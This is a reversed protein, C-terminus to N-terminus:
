VLWWYLTSTHRWTVIMTAVNRSWLLPSNLCCRCSRCRSQYFRFRNINAFCCSQVDMVTKPVSRPRRQLDAVQFKRIEHARKISNFQHVCCLFNRKRNSFEPVTRESEVGSLKALIRCPLHFQSLDIFNSVTRIWKKLSTKAKNDDLFKAVMAVHSLSKEERFVGRKFRIYLNPM